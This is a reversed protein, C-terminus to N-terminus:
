VILVLSEDEVAKSVQVQVQEQEATLLEAHRFGFFNAVAKCWFFAIGLAVVSHTWHVQLGLLMDTAIWAANVGLLAGTAFFCETCWLLKDLLPSSVNGRTSRQQQQQKQEQNQHQQELHSWGLLMLNRLLVLILVGMCSTLLSWGFSVYVVTNPQMDLALTSTATAPNLSNPGYLVTLLFNAGLSSFQIFFGVALGLGLSCTQFIRMCSLVTMTTMMEPEHYDTTTSALLPETLNAKTTTDDNSTNTTTATTTPALNGCYTIVRCWILTAVLTVVSHVVHATLGLILDTCTWALCVGVLAGIAFHSEMKHLLVCADLDQSSNNNNSAPYSIAATTAWAAVVLYRLLLLIAVGLVSTFLSWGLSFWLVDAQIGTQLSSATTSSTSTASATATNLLFNAGLSSFQIFFGVILGLAVTYRHFRAVIADQQQKCDSATMTVTGRNDEDEDEDSLTSENDDDCTSNISNPYLLVATFVPHARELAAITTNNTAMTTGTVLSREENDNDDENDDGDEPYYAGEPDRLGMAMVPELNEKNNVYLNDIPDAM